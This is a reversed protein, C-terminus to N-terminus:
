ATDFDNESGFFLPMSNSSKKRPSPGGGLRFVDRVDRKKDGRVSGGTLNAAAGPVGFLGLGGVVCTAASAMAGLGHLSRQSSVSSVISSIAASEESCLLLITLIHVHLLM